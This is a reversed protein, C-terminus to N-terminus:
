DSSTIEAVLWASGTILFNVAFESWNFHTQPHAALTPVWVLLGFLALMVTLLRLALRARMNILIAIAALGFAITTLIVWFMQNPPLWTPVLDATIKPFFIQALTFSVACVGFAIRVARGLSLRAAVIPQTAAYIALAGCVVSFFEFFPVYPGYTLPAHVIDPVCALTFIGFVITLLVSGLRGMQPLLIAIGGAIQLLAIADCIFTGFPLGPIPLGEWSESDHWMLLVVGFLTAAV